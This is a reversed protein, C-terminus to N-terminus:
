RSTRQGTLDAGYAAGTTPDTLDLRGTVSAADPSFRLQVTGALVHDPELDTGASTGAATDATFLNLTNVPALQTIVEVVLTDTAATQTVLDVPGSNPTVGGLDM